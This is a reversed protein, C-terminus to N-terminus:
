GSPPAWAGTVVFVDTMANVDHPVLNTAESGFGVFRGNASVAPGQIGNIGSDGGNSQRGSSGVSVRETESRWRDRIFIDCLGNTDGVVLNTACSPFAVFRGDVSIAVPGGGGFDAQVRNPGVSVRTTRGLKRDRVFVDGTGNTDGPVVNSAGSAFAVFRGGGSIAPSSDTGGNAQRGGPGVNVRETVGGAWAGPATDAIAGAGALAFALVRGIWRRM